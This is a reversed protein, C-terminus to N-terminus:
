YIELIGQLTSPDQYPHLETIGPHRAALLLRHRPRQLRAVDEDDVFAYRLITAVAAIPTRASSRTKRM